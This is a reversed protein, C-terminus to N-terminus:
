AAQMPWLMCPLIRTLIQRCHPSQFRRSQIAFNEYNSHSDHTTVVSDRVGLVIAGEQLFWVCDNYPSPPDPTPKHLRSRYCYTSWRQIRTLAFVTRCGNSASHLHTRLTNNPPLHLRDHLHRIPFHVLLASGVWKSGEWILLLRACLGPRSTWSLTCRPRILFIVPMARLKAESVGVGVDLVWGHVLAHIDTKDELKGATTLTRTAALSEIELTECGQGRRNKLLCSRGRGRM